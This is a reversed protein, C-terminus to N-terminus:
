CVFLLIVCVINKSKENKIEIWISEFDKTKINLDTREHFKFEKKVKVKKKVSM